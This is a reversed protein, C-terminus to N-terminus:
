LVEITCKLCSVAACMFVQQDCGEAVLISAENSEM